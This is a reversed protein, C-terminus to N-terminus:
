GGRESDLHAMQPTPYRDGAVAVHPVAREIRALAATSLRLDLAGLAV